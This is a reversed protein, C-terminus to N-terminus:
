REKEQQLEDSSQRTHMVYALLWCSCWGNFTKRKKKIAFRELVVKSIIPTYSRSIRLAFVFMRRRYIVHTHGCDRPLETKRAGEGGRGRRLECPEDHTPANTNFFFHLGM